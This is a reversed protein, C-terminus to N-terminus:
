RHCESMIWRDFRAVLEPHNLVRAGLVQTHALNSRSLRQRPTNCKDARTSCSLHLTEVKVKRESTARRHEQYLRTNRHQLGSSRVFFFFVSEWCKYRRLHHSVLPFVCSLIWFSRIYFLKKKKCQEPFKKIHRHFTLSVLSSVTKIREGPLFCGVSVANVSVLTDIDSRLSFILILACVTVRM